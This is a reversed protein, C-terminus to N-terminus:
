SVMAVHLSRLQGWSVQRYIFNLTPPFNVTLQNFVIQLDLFKTRFCMRGISYGLFQSVVNSYMGM